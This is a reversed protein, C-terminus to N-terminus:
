ALHCDGVAVADVRQGHGPRRLLMAQACPAHDRVEVVELLQRGGGDEVPFERVEDDELAQPSVAHLDHIRSQSAPSQGHLHKTTGVGPDGDRELRTLVELGGCQLGLAGPAIEPRQEALSLPEGPDEHCRHEQPQQCEGKRQQGPQQHVHDDGAVVPVEQQHGPGGHTRDDAVEEERCQQPAVQQQVQARAQVYVQRRPEDLV